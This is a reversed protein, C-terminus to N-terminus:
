PNGRVYKIVREIVIRDIRAVVWRTDYIGCLVQKPVVIPKEPLISFRELYSVWTLPKRGDPHTLPPMLSETLKVASAFVSSFRRRSLAEVKLLTEM